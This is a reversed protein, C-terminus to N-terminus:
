YKLSSGGIFERVLSINGAKSPDGDALEKLVSCLYEAEANNKLSALEKYDLTKYVSPEYGIFSDIDYDARTKYPKVYKDTGNEVKPFYSLTEEASRGRYKRDRILRRLLRIYKPHLEGGGFEIRTRVSVYIKALKSEDFSIVSPNLAHIGEFIIFENEKRKISFSVGNSKKATFDFHPIDVRECNILKGLQDSFLEADIRDPNEFDMKGEADLKEDEASLSRFYSDMSIKHAPFGRDELFKQIILATTTKGSGSPGSLLIIPREHYHKVIDETVKRVASFYRDDENKYGNKDLVINNLEGTTITKM